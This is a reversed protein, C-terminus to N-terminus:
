SKEIAIELAKLEKLCNEVKKKLEKKSEESINEFQLSTCIDIIDIQAQYVKKVNEAKKLQKIM